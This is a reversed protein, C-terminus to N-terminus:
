VRAYTRLEGPQDVKSKESPQKRCYTFIKHIINGILVAIYFMMCGAALVALATLEPTFMPAVIAVGAARGLTESGMYIITKNIFYNSIYGAAYTEGLRRGYVGGCTAFVLTYPSQPIWSSSVFASVRTLKDAIFTCM